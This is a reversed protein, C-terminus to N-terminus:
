SELRVLETDPFFAAWAFWFHDGNVVVELRSGALEGSVGRGFIDWVSGTERDIFTQPDEPNPAFSLLRGDLERRFVGTAGVDTGEEISAAGLASATGPTWVVVIEM